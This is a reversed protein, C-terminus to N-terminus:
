KADSLNIKIFIDDKKTFDNDHNLGCSWVYIYESKYMCLLPNGWGDIFESKYVDSPIVDKVMFSQGEHDRLDIKLDNFELAAFTNKSQSLVVKTHTDLEKYENNCSILLLGCATSFIFNKM